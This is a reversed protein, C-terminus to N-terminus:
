TIEKVDESSNPKKEHSHKQMKLIDYKKAACNM